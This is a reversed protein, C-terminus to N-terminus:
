AWPVNLAGKDGNALTRVMEDYFYNSAERVQPSIRQDYMQRSRDIDDKLRDYIDKNRRGEEVQKENYLVMESVLLRAFRRAEEHLKQEEPSLSASPRPAAALMEEAEEVVELAEEAPAPAPSRAEAVPTVPIGGSPTLERPRKFVGSLSTPDMSAAPAAGPAPATSRSPTPPPAGSRSSVTATKTRPFKQRTALTELCLGAHVALVQPLEPDSIAPERGSDAYLVAAIKDRLFIPIAMSEPAAEAGLKGLMAADGAHGGRGALVPAGSRYAAGLITDDDFGINLSRVDTDQAGDFGRAAWGMLLEKRAIFFAVRPCSVTCSLLLQTLLGVQDTAALMEQQADHISALMAHDAQGTGEEEVAPPTPLLEDPISVTKEGAIQISSEVRELAANLAQRLDIVSRASEELRARLASTIFNQLTEKTDEPM